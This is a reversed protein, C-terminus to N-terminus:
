YAHAGHAGIVFIWRLTFETRDQGINSTIMKGGLEIKQFETAYWGITGSYTRDVTEPSLPPNTYDFRGTLFWREELQYTLYSYMGWTNIADGHDIGYKSFFVESQWIISKYRNMQLPKWKLTLDAAGLSSTLELQNPGTLGSLGLEVTTNEDTEWFNKLHAVYLYRGAQPPAFLPSESSVNSIGVEIEQYFDFPNPILWDLTAGDDILGDEGLFAVNPAPIDSFPLAHPHVPNIRGVPLRFRGAKFRLDFPLSLTTLYGEELSGVYNGDQNRSFSFYFDAKAYPDISSLFSIEAEQFQFQLKRKDYDHYTGRIDGIASINPNMASGSVPGSQGFVTLPVIFCCLIVINRM